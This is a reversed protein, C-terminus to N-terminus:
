RYTPLRTTFNEPFHRRYVELEKKEELLKEAIGSVVSKVVHPIINNFPVGTYSM